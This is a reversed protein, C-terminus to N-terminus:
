VLFGYAYHEYPFGYAYHEYPFDMRTTSMRSIWVRVARGTGSLAELTAMAADAAGTAATLRAEEM